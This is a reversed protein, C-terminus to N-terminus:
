QSFKKLVNTDVDKYIELVADFYVKASRSKMDFIVCIHHWGYDNVEFRFPHLTNGENFHIGAEDMWLIEHGESETM